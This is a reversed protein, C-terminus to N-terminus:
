RSGLSSSPRALCARGHADAQHSSRASVLRSKFDSRKVPKKLDGGEPNAEAHHLFHPTTKDGTGGGSAM